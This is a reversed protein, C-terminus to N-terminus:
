DIGHLYDDFCKVTTVISVVTDIVIHMKVWNEPSQQAECDTQALHVAWLLRKICLLLKYGFMCNAIAVNGITHLM